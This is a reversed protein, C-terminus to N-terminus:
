VRYYTYEEMFDFVGDEWYVRQEMFRDCSLFKSSFDFFQIGVFGWAFIADGIVHDLCRTGLEM